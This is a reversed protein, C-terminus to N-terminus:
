STKSVLRLRTQRSNDRLTYADDLPREVDSVEWDDLTIYWFALQM